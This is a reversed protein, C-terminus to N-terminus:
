RVPVSGRRVSRRSLLIAGGVQQSAAHFMWVRPDSTRRQRLPLTPRQLCRPRDSLDPLRSSLRPSHHKLRSRPKEIKACSLLSSTYSGWLEQHLRVRLRPRTGHLIRRRHSFHLISLPWALSLKRARLLRHLVLLQCMENTRLNLEHSLAERTRTTSKSAKGNSRHTRSKLLTAGNRSSHGLIPILSWSRIPSLHLSLPLLATGTRKRCIAALRPPYGSRARRTPSLCMLRLRVLLRLGM